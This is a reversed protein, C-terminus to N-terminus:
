KSIHQPFSAEPQFCAKLSVFSLFVDMFGDLFNNNLVRPAHAKIMRFERKSMLGYSKFFYLNQFINLPCKHQNPRYFQWDICIIRYLIKKLKRNMKLIKSNRIKLGKTESRVSFGDIFANIFNERRFKPINIPNKACVCLKSPTRKVRSQQVLM